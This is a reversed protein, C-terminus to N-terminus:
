LPTRSSVNQTITSDSAQTYDQYSDDTQWENVNVYEAQQQTTNYEPTHYDDTSIGEANEYHQAISPPAYISESTFSDPYSYVNENQEYQTASVDFQEYPSATADIQPLSTIQPITPHTYINEATEVGASPLQVASQPNYDHIPEINQPPLLPRVFPLPVVPQLKYNHNVPEITQPQQLPSVFPGPVVSQPNYDHIPEINQPPLLPRVFPLPVVPQLKYNYNVPEITQPQQLPSVFPGPVVSQPNYDHIPEINQPPLLPRVSTVPAIQQLKYDHNIPQMTQPPPPPQLPTSTPFTHMSDLQREYIFEYNASEGSPCVQREPSYQPNENLEIAHSQTPMQSATASFLSSRSDELHKYKDLVKDKSIKKKKKKGRRLVIDEEDDDLGGSVIQINLTQKKPRGGWWSRGSGGGGGMCGGCKCCCSCFGCGKCKWLIIVIVVIAIILLLLLLLGLPLGISLGPIDLPPIEPPPPPPPPTTTIFPTTSHIPIEDCAGTETNLTYNSECKECEQPRSQNCQVCHVLGCAFCTGNSSVQYSEITCNEVCASAERLYECEMCDVGSWLGECICRGCVSNAVENERCSLLCNECMVGGWENTCNCYGSKYMIDDSNAVLVVEDRSANVFYEVSCSGNNECRVKSCLLGVDNLECHRGTFGVDCGCTYNLVEDVCRGENCDVSLCDDINDECFAGNFGAECVCVSGQVTNLCEVSNNSCLNPECYDIANECDHGSYPFDCACTYNGLTPTCTGNNLCPDTLCFDVESNCFQGIYEYSCQCEAGRIGNLCTGNNRCPNLTKCSDVTVGCDPGTTGAHCICSFGTTESSCVSENKCPQSLCFDIKNECNGGTYGQICTCTPGAPSSNCNANQPCPSSDCFNIETSCNRDSYGHPCICANCEANATGNNDCPYSCIDCNSGSIFESCVCSHNSHPRTGSPCVTQCTDQWLFNCCESAGASTCYGFYSMDCVQDCEVCHYPNSASFHCSTCNDLYYSHSRFVSLQSTNFLSPFQQDIAMWSDSICEFDIQTYQIASPNPDSVQFDVTISLSSFINPTPSHARCNYYVELISITPPTPSELNIGVIAKIRNEILSSTVNEICQSTCLSIFSLLIFIQLSFDVM